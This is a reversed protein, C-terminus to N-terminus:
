QTVDHRGKAFLNKYVTHRQKSAGAFMSESVFLLQTKMFTSAANRLNQCRTIAKQLQKSATNQTHVTLRADQFVKLFISTLSMKPKWPKLIAIETAAVAITAIYLIYLM